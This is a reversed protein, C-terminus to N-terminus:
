AEDPNPFREVIQTGKLRLREDFGEEVTGFVLLAVSVIAMMM